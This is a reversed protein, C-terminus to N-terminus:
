NLKDELEKKKKFSDNEDESKLLENIHRENSSTM